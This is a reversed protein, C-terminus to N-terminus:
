WYSQNVSFCNYSVRPTEKIDSTKSPVMLLNTFFSLLRMKTIWLQIPYLRTAHSKRLCLVRSMNTEFIRSPDVGICAAGSRAGYFGSIVWLLALCSGLLLCASELICTTLKPRCGTGIKAAQQSAACRGCNLLCFGGARVM